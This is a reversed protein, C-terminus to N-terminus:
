LSWKIQTSVSFEADDVQDISGDNDEDYSIVLKDMMDKIREDYYRRQLDYEDDEQKAKGQFILRMSYLIQLEKLQPIDCIRNYLIGKARLDSILAEVARNIAMFYTFVCYVSTTDIASDFVPIVTLTGTSDDYDTVRRKAGRNTGDLIRVVSGNFVDNKFFGKLENADVITGATGSSATGRLSYQQDEYNLKPSEAFLDRDTILIPVKKYEVDFYHVFTYVIGSITVLWTARYKKGSNALQAATLSYSVNSGSITADEGSVATDPLASEGPQVITVTAASPTVYANDFLADFSLTGAADEILSAVANDITFGINNV